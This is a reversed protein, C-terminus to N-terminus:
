VTVCAHLPAPPLPGNRRGRGMPFRENGSAHSAYMSWKDYDWAESQSKAKRTPGKATDNAAAATTKTTPVMAVRKHDFEFFDTTTTSIRSTPMSANRIVQGSCGRSELEVKTGPLHPDNWFKTDM